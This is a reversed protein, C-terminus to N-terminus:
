GGSMGVFRDSISISPLSSRQDELARDRLEQSWPHRTRSNVAFEGFIGKGTQGTGRVRACGPGGPRRGQGRAGARTLRPGAWLRPRRDRAAAPGPPACRDGPRPPKERAPITAGYHAAPSGVRVSRHQCRHTGDPHGSPHRFIRSISQPAQGRSIAWGVRNDRSVNRQSDTRIIVGAQTRRRGLMEPYLAANPNGGVM